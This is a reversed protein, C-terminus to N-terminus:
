RLARAKKKQEEQSDTISASAFRALRAKKKENEDTSMSQKIGFRLLLVYIYKLTVIIFITFLMDELNHLNMIFLTMILQCFSKLREARAKLKLEQAKKTADLGQSSPM